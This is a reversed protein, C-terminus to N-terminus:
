KWVRAKTQFFLCRFYPTKCVNGGVQPSTPHWLARVRFAAELILCFRSNSLSLPDLIARGFCATCVRTTGTRGAGLATTGAGLTGPPRGAFLSNQGDAVDVRSIYDKMHPSMIAITLSSWSMLRAARHVFDRADENARTNVDTATSPNSHEPGRQAFRCSLTPILPPM